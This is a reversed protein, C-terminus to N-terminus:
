IFPSAQIRPLAGSSEIPGGGETQGSVMEQGRLVMNQCAESSQSYEGELPYGWGPFSPHAPPIRIGLLRKTRAYSIVLM